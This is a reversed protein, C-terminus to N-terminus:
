WICEGNPVLVSVNLPAPSPFPTASYDGSVQSGSGAENVGSRCTVLCSLDGPWPMLSLFATFFVPGNREGEENWNRWRPRGVVSGAWSNEFGCATGITWLPSLPVRPSQSGFAKPFFLSIRTLGLCVLTDRQDDRQSSPSPIGWWWWRWSNRTWQLVFARGLM